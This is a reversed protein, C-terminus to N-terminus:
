LVSQSVQKNQNLKCFNTLQVRRGKLQKYHKLNLIKQETNTTANSDHKGIQMYAHSLEDMVSMSQELLEWLGEIKGEISQIDLEGKKACLRELSHRVKTM